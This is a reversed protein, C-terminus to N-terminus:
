WTLRIITVKSADHEHLDGKDAVFATGDLYWSAYFHLDQSGYTGHPYCVLSHYFTYWLLIPRQRVEQLNIAKGIGKDVGEEFAM